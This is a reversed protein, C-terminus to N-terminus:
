YSVIYYNNNNCVRLKYVYYAKILPQNSHVQICKPSFIQATKRPYNTLDSALDVFSKKRLLLPIFNKRKFNFNNLVDELSSKHHEWLM